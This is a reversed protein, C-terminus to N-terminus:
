RGPDSVGIGWARREWGSPQQVGATAQYRHEASKFYVEEEWLFLDSAFLVPLLLLFEPNRFTGSPLAVGVSGLPGSPLLRLLSAAAVSAPSRRLGRRTPDVCVPPRETFLASSVVGPRPVTVILHCGCAVGAPCARQVPARSKPVHVALSM